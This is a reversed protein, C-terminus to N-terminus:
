LILLTVVLNPAGAYVPYIILKNTINVWNKLVILYNLIKDNYVCYVVDKQYFYASFAVINEFNIPLSYTNSNKSDPWKLLLM